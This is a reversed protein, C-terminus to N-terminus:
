TAHQSASSDEWAETMNNCGLTFSTPYDVMTLSPPADEPNKHYNTPQESQQWIDEDQLSALRLHIQELKNLLQNLKTQLFDKAVNHRSYIELNGTHDRLYPGLIEQKIMSITHRLNAQLPREAGGRNM